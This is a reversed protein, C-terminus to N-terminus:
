NPPGGNFEYAPVSDGVAKTKSGLDSVASQVQLWLMKRAPGQGAACAAILKEKCIQVTDQAACRKDMDETTWSRAMCVAEKDFFSSMAAAAAKLKQESSEVAAMAAQLKTQNVKPPIQPQLQNLQSASYPLKPLTPKAQTASAGPPSTSQGAKSGRQPMPMEASCFHSLLLAGFFGVSVVRVLARRSARKNM